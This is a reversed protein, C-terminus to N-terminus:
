YIVQLTAQQTESTGDSTGVEVLVYYVGASVKIGAHTYGDWSGNLGYFRYIPEGYRNFITCVLTEFASNSNIRFFDNDGDENPTFINPISVVDQAKAEFSSLACFLLITTLLKM